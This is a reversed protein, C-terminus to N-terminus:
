SPPTDYGAPPPSLDAVSHRTLGHGQCVQHDTSANAKKKKIFM